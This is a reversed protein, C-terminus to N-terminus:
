DGAPALVAFGQQKFITQARAGQLFTMFAAADANESATVIGAPYIIDPHSNAPFTGIVTVGPEAMADTAYIIGLAAEGTAVLKLAARVNEAMAIRGEVSTWLGLSQLAAKAYKGAPVGKVDGMALKGEGLLGGLDFGKTITVTQAQGAPAVLVLANGLLNVVSAADILQAETLANMWDTDASIFIDAPAGQEIQKALSSSAAYSIATDKQTDATWAKATEDLANKLSAAAFITLKEAAFAPRCALLSMAVATGARLMTTMAARRNM